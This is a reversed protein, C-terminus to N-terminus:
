SPRIHYRAYGVPGDVRSSVDAQTLAPRLLVHALSCLRKTELFAAGARRGLLLVRGASVMTIYIESTVNIPDDYRAQDHVPPRGQGGNPERATVDSEFQM